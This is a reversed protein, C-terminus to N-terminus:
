TVDFGNDSLLGAVRRASRVEEWATEPHDYLDRSLEILRPHAAAVGGAIAADISTV